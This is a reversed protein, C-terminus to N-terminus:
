QTLRRELEAWAEETLPRGCEKCFKFPDFESKKYCQACLGLMGEYPNYDNKNRCNECTNCSECPEWAERDIHPLPYPYALWTKRYDSCRKEMRGSVAVRVFSVSYESSSAVLAWEEINTKKIKSSFTHIWVPKGDMERLQELALPMMKTVDPFHDTKFPVAEGPHADEHILIAKVLEANSRSNFFITVVSGPFPIDLAWDGCIERINYKENTM